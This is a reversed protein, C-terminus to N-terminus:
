GMRPSVLLQAAKTTNQVIEIWEGWAPHSKRGCSYKWITSMEIWEGWAPHSKGPPTHAWIPLIEIWEGWAPHSRPLLLLSDFTASKM